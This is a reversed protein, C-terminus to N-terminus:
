LSGFSIHQANNNGELKFLFQFCHLMNPREDSDETCQAATLGRLVIKLVAQVTTLGRMVIKMLLELLLFFNM